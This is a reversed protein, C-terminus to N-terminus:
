FAFKSVREWFKQTLLEPILAWFVAKLLDKLHNQHIKLNSFWQDLFIWLDYM